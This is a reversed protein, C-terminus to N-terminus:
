VGEEEGDAVEGEPAGVLFERAFGVYEDWGLEDGQEEGGADTATDGYLECSTAAATARDTAAGGNAQPLLDYNFIPSLGYMRSELRANCGASPISPAPHLGRRLIVIAPTM